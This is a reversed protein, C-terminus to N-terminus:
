RIIGVIKLTENDIDEIGDPTFIDHCYMLLIVIIDYIIPLLWYRKNCAKSTLALCLFMCFFTGNIVSFFAISVFFMYMISIKTSHVITIIIFKNMIELLKLYIKNIARRIKGRMTEDRHYGYRVFYFRDKAMLRQRSDDENVRGEEGNINSSTDFQRQRQSAFPNLFSMKSKQSVDDPITLIDEDIGQRDLFQYRDKVIEKSIYM